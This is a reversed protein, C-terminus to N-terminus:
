GSCRCPLLWRGVEVRSTEQPAGIVSLLPTVSVGHCTSYHTWVRWLAASLCASASSPVRDAVDIDSISHCRDPEAENHRGFRAILAPPGGVDGIQGAQQVPGGSMEVRRPDDIVERGTIGIQELAEGGERVHGRQMRAECEAM